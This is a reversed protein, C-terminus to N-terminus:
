YVAGREKEVQQVEQSFIISQNFISVNVKIRKLDDSINYEM